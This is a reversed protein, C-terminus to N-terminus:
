VGPREPLGSDILFKAVDRTSAVSRKGIRRLSISLRNRAIARKLTLASRYRLLQALEQAEILEGFQAVLREELSPWTTNDTEMPRGQVKLSKPTDPLMPLPDTNSGVTVKVFRFIVVNSRRRVSVHIRQSSQSNPDLSVFASSCVIAAQCSSSWRGSPYSADPMKVLYRLPGVLGKPLQTGRGSARHTSLAAANHAV